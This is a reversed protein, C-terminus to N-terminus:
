EVAPPSTKENAAANTRNRRQQEGLAKRVTAALLQKPTAAAGLGTYSEALQKAAAQEAEPIVLTVELPPM